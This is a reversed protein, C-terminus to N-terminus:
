RLSIPQSSRSQNRRAWSLVLPPSKHVCYHVKPNRLLSSSAPRSKPKWSLNMDMSNNLNESAGASSKHKKINKGNIIGVYHANSRRLHFCSKIYAGSNRHRLMDIQFMEYCYIKSSSTPPFHPVCPPPSPHKCPKPQSARLCSVAPLGPRLHSSLMLISRLSIPISPAFQIWRAWSLTWHRAKTFVTIFRRTGYSLLIHKSLSLSLWSKLYQGAGHFLYTLFYTVDILIHSKQLTIKATYHSLLM